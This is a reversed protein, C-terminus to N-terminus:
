QQVLVTEAHWGCCEGVLIMTLLESDSCAPRPGQSPKCCPPLQQCLEDVVVYMWTCFDAFDRIM